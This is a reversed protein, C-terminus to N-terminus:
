MMEFTNQNHCLCMYIHFSCFDVCFIPYLQKYKRDLGLDYVVIIESNDKKAWKEAFLLGRKEYQSKPPNAPLVM